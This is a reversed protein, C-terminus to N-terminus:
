EGDRKGEVEAKRAAEEQEALFREVPPRELRWPTAQQYAHAVALLTSEGIDRAESM